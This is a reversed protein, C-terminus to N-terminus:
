APTDEALFKKWSISPEPANIRHCFSASSEVPDKQNDFATIIPIFPISARLRLFSRGGCPFCWFITIELGISYERSSIDLSSPPCQGHIIASIAIPLLILCLPLSLAGSYAGSPVINKEGM